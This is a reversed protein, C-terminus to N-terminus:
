RDGGGSVESFHLCTSRSSFCGSSSGSIAPLIAAQWDGRSRCCCISGSATCGVYGCQPAASRARRSISCRASALCCKAGTKDGFENIWLEQLPNGHRRARLRCACCSNSPVDGRQGGARLRLRQSSRGRCPASLPPPAKGGSEGGSRGVHRHLARPSLDDENVGADAQLSAGVGAM